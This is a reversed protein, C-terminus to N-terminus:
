FLTKGRTQTGSSWSYTSSLTIPTNNKESKAATDEKKRHIFGFTDADASVVGAHIGPEENSEHKQPIFYPNVQVCVYVCFLFTLGTNM